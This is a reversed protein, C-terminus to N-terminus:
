CFEAPVPHGERADCYPCPSGADAKLMWSGHPTRYVLSLPVPSLSITTARHATVDGVGRRVALAVAPRLAQASPRLYWRCDCADSVLLSAPELSTSRLIADVDILHDPAMLVWAPKYCQGCRVTTVHNRDYYHHLNGPIFGRPWSVARRQQARVQDRVSDKRRRTM